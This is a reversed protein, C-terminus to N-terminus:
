ENIKAVCVVSRKSCRCIHKVPETSNSANGVVLAFVETLLFQKHLRTSWHRRGSATRAQVFGIKREGRGARLWRQM